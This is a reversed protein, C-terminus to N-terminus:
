STGGAVELIAGTLREAADPVALTRMGMRMAERAGADALIRRIAELLLAPALASEEIVMAGGLTAVLRANARQHGQAHPYPILIAPLGCRALEAITSAGARAIVLDAAAYADAMGTVFAAVQATMGREAYSRRVMAEDAAGTLHLVQWRGREEDLAHSLADVVIRNVARAGQSGGIVLLTPRSAEFGARAVADMRSMTGIRSRVPLGTQVARGWASHPFTVAVRDVWRALWRNARGMVVNQEHIVCKIRHLRAALVVPASVWGGFGVVIDPGFSAFCQAARSWLRRSEGLRDLLRPQALVPIPAVAVAAGAIERALAQAWGGAQPRQAYWVRVDAGTRALVVATELAPILHGGSGDAVFLAKLRRSGNLM